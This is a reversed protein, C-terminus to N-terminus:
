QQDAVGSCWRGENQCELQGEPHLFLVQTNSDVDLQLTAAGASHWLGAPQGLSGSCMVLSFLDTVGVRVNLIPLETGGKGDQWM